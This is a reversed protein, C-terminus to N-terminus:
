QPRESGVRTTGSPTHWSVMPAMPWKKSPSEVTAVPEIRSVLVLNKCYHFPQGGECSQYTPAQYDRISINGRLLATACSRPLPDMRPVCINSSPDGKSSRHLKTRSRWATVGPCGNTEPILQSFHRPIQYLGRIDTTIQSLPSNRATREERVLSSDGRPRTRPDKAASPGLGHVERSKLIAKACIERVWRM